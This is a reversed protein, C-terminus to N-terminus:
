EFRREIQTPAIIPSCATKCFVAITQLHTSLSSFKKAQYAVVEERLQSLFWVGYKLRPTVSRKLAQKFLRM